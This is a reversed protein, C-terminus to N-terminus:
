RVRRILLMGSAAFLLSPAAASLLPDFGYVQGLHGLLQNLLHFVIGVMVGALLRQGAGVARLPGFVFPVSLFLMVLGALPAMLRQWFALEYRSSDLRNDRLYSVYRLLDRASLRDPEIVVVNLLEPSLPSRWPREEFVERRFADVTLMAREGARLWWVGDRYEARQARLVSGLRGDQGLEYVEIGALSGDPFIEKINIYRNGDRAWIGSESRFTIRSTQAMTRQNQAMQGAPPAVWEGIAAAVLLMALGAKMVWWVIRKLSVGAARIAILEGHAAMAGLGLLSGLLTAMPFLGYAREPVTLGVYFLVERLGYNGQGIDQMENLIAFFLDVALLLMLALLTGVIVARGLYRELLRM